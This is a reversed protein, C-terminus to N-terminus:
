SMSELFHGLNQNLSTTKELFTQNFKVKKTPCREKSFEPLVTRVNSLNNIIPQHISLSFSADLLLPPTPSGSDDPNGSVLRRHEQLDESTQDPDQHRGRQHHRVVRLGPDHEDGDEAEGHGEDPQHHEGESHMVVFAAPGCRYTRRANCRLSVGNVTSDSLRWSGGNNEPWIRCGENRSLEDNLVHGNADFWAQQKFSKWSCGVWVVGYKVGHKRPDKAVHGVLVFDIQHVTTSFIGSVDQLDVSAKLFTNPM